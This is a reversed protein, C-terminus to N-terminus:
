KEAYGCYETCLTPNVLISIAVHLLLFNSYVADSVYGRLVVPGTYLLFQRLETAKWRDIECLSRPKRAFEKAIVCHLPGKRWFLLLRRTVGLCVLHMYDIPFQTVMGNREERYTEPFSELYPRAIEAFRRVDISYGHELREATHIASLHIIMGELWILAANIQHDQVLPLPASRPVSTVVRLYSSGQPPTLVATLDLFRPYDGNPPTTIYSELEQYPNTSSRHEM